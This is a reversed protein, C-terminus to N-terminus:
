ETKLKVLDKIGRMRLYPEDQARSELVIAPRTGQEIMDMFQRGVVWSYNDTSKADRPLQSDPIALAVPRPESTVGGNRMESALKALTRGIPKVRNKQDLVGLTYELSDFGKIAPDIDHSCWWTFGWVQGCSAANTLLKSAYEPIYSEPMWEGSAGVEEVWVLRNLDTAYAKALEVMYELLHLNGAQNYRYYKLAGTFYAYCHLITAAGTTALNQRTFGSDSFWPGDDAGNVHFKGPAIQALKKLLTTAWADAQALNAQNGATAEQLVNIENGIDFGLFRPHQGVTRTLSEFLLNESQIVDPDTFINKGKSLPAVWSPLFSYGSLWGDLVTIEVDLKETGALDLLAHLHDLASPSVYNMGPQFTPWLCQIRIHDMGLDAIARFDEAIAKADWDQWIYWWNKRPVYNVGFRLRQAESPSAFARSNLFTQAAVAALALAGAKM